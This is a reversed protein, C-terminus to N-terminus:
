DSSQTTSTTPLFRRILGLRVDVLGELFEIAVEDEPQLCGTLCVVAVSATAAILVFLPLTVISLSVVQALLLAPPVLILPVLVFTRTSWPSFPTIGYESRLYAFVVVNMGITSVASAVASGVYSYQPILLYNLMANAALATGNAVLLLKTRGLASLTERNRGAAANTFFGISLIALAPGAAAYKNKFFIALTDGPFALFTLFLPFTIVFVWKTTLTYIKDIEKHEDDADLRSALPLYLFGFASLVLLMGNALPYAAGYLAVDHASRFYGLMMTDTQTMLMALVTSVILPLSFRLMEGTYTEFRGALPILRNLLFLGAIFTLGSAVIYAYGVAEMGVGVQLLAIIIIMRSFPYLLDRVCTKYLTNERGRIGSVTVQFGVMLPITIAFLRVLEASGPITKGTKPAHVFTSAVWGANVYLVVATVLSLTGTVILGTMWAGRVSEVSEFRSMYRPIGQAFGAQAFTVSLTAVAIVLNITGFQDVPLLNGLVVREVLMALSAVGTGIFVLTASSLLNSLSDTTESETM